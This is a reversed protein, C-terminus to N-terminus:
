ISQKFLGDFAHKLVDQGLDNFVKDQSAYSSSKSKAELVGTPLEIFDDHSRLM